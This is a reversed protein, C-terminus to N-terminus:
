KELAGSTLIIALDEVKKEIIEEIIKCVKDTSRSIIVLKENEFFSKNVLNEKFSDINELIEKEEYNFINKPLIPKLSNKITEDILGKNKGYLLFYKKNKVNKKPIEFFKVIM